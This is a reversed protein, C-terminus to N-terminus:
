IQKEAGIRNFSRNIAISNIILDADDFTRLSGNTSNSNKSVIFGFVVHDATFQAGIRSLFEAALIQDARLSFQSTQLEEVLFFNIRVDHRVLFISGNIDVPM